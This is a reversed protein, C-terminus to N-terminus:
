WTAAIFRDGLQDNFIERSPGTLMNIPYARSQGDVEVGLVLDNANLTKSAVEVSVHPPRIIPEFARVVQQPRYEMSAESTAGSKEGSARIQARAANPTVRRTAAFLGLLSLLLLGLAIARYRM